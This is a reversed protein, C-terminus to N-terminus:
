VAINWGLTSCHVHPSTQGSPAGIAVLLDFPVGNRAVAAHLFQIKCILVVRETTCTDLM